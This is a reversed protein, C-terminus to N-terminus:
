LLFNDRIDLILNKIGKYNRHGNIQRIDTFLQFSFKNSEFSDLYAKLHFQAFM